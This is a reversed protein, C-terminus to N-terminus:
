DKHKAKIHMTLGNLDKAEFECKKCKLSHKGLLEEFKEVAQKFKELAPKMDEFNIGDNGLMDNDDDDDSSDDDSETDASEEHKYMCLSRACNRGFKCNESDEHIYMCEDDFPCDKDNNYYHCFLPFDEHAAEKHKELVAEYKFVKECKDCEFKVHMKDRHNQLKNEDKFCKECEECKYEFNSCCDEKHDQFNKLTEFKDGCKSCRFKNKRQKKVFKEYKRELNEHKELLNKILDQLGIFEKKLNIFETELKKTAM